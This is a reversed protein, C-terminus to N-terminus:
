GGTFKKRWAQWPTTNVEAPPTAEWSKLDPIQIVYEGPKQMLLEDRIIKEQTLPDNAQDTKTKLESVESTIKTIEQELVGVNETSIRTKRWTTTLSLGIAIVVLTVIGATTPHFFWKSLQM